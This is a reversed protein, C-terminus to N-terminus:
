EMFFDLNKRNVIVSFIRELAKAEIRINSPKKLGQNNKM